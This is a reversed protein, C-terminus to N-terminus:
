SAGNTIDINLGAAQAELTVSVPAGPAHKMSNTLGEQVIRVADAAVAPSLVHEGATRFTVDTGTARVADILHGALELLSDPSTGDRGLLTAAWPAGRV